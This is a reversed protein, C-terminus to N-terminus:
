WQKWEGVSQVTEWLRWKGPLSPQSGGPAKAAETLPWPSWLQPCLQPHGLNPDLRSQMQFPLGPPSYGRRDGCAGQHGHVRAHGAPDFLEEAVVLAHDQGPVPLMAEERQRGHPGGIHAGDADVEVPHAPGVPTRLQAM